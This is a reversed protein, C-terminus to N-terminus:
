FVWGLRVVKGLDGIIDYYNVKWWWLNNKKNSQAKSTLLKSKGGRLM